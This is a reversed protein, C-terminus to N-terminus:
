RFPYNHNTEQIKEDIKTLKLKDSTTQGEVLVKSPFFVVM